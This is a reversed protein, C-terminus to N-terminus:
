FGFSKRRKRHHKMGWRILFPLLPIFLLLLLWWYNFSSSSVSSPTENVSLSNKADNLSVEEKQVSPAKKADNKSDCADGKGDRDFDDQDSNNHSPCNDSFDNVGDKDLDGDKKVQLGSDDYYVLYSDFIQPREGRIGLNKPKFDEISFTVIEGNESFVVTRGFIFPAKGKMKTSTHDHTKADVLVIEGLSEVVADNLKGLSISSAEIKLNGVKRTKFDFSRVITDSKDGDANLDVDIQVEKTLFLLYDANRVPMSGVAKLSTVNKKNMDYEFIVDDDQDGDGSVDEGLDSEKASFVIYNAFVFPNQGSMNIMTVNGLRVEVFGVKTNDEFASIFGFLSPNSGSVISKEQMRAVDLAVLQGNKEFVVFEGYLSAASVCLAMVVGMVLIGFIRM